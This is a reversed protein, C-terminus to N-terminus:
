ARAMLEDHRHLSLRVEDHPLEVEFLVVNVKADREADIRLPRRAVRAVALESADVVASVALTHSVILELVRHM